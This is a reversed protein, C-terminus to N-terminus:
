INEKYFSPLGSFFRNIKVKEDKIFGVYKFLGLLKNKYEEMTMSGLQIEFFYQM